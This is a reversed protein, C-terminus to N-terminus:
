KEHRVNLSNNKCISVFYKLPLDLFYKTHEEAIESFKSVMVQECAAQLSKDKFKISDAYFQTCNDQTLLTTKIINTLDSMLKHMELAYAQAYIAFVNQENVEDQIKYIDQNSYVYKLIRKIQDDSAGNGSITTMPAPIGVTKLEKVPYERFIDLMYKSASAIIIRHCKHSAKNKPALLTVDSLTGDLDMKFFDFMEKPFEKEEEKSNKKKISKMKKFIRNYTKTRGIDILTDLFESVIVLQAEKTSEPAKKFKEFEKIWDADELKELELGRTFFDRADAEPINAKMVNELQVDEPVGEKNEEPKVKENVIVMIDQRFKFESKLPIVKKEEQNEAM